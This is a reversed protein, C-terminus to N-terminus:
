DRRLWGNKRRVYGEAGKKTKACYVRQYCQGNDTVKYVDWGNVGNYIKYWTM